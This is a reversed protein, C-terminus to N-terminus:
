MEPLIEDEPYTEKRRAIALIEKWCQIVNKRPPIKWDIAERLKTLNRSPVAPFMHHEVHEDLGGYFFKIIPSVKVGRTCMRQDNANYMMGPHETYFYFSVIALGARPGLMLLVILIWQQWIIMVALGALNILLIFLSEIQISKKEAASCQALVMPHIKGVIRKLLTWIGQFFSPIGLTIVNILIGLLLRRVWKVTIVEPFDSEPDVGFVMTYRHHIKHSARQYRSGDKFLVHILFNIIESFWQMGQGFVIKHRMEHEIGNLFGVLFAFLFYPVVALLLHYRSAFVTLWGAATICGGHVIVRLMGNLSSRKNLQQLTEKDIAPREWKKAEDDWQRDKLESRSAFQLEVSCEKKM